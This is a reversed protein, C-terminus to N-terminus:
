NAESQLALFALLAVHASVDQSSNGCEPPACQGRWLHKEKLRHHKILCMILDCSLFCRSLAAVDVINM